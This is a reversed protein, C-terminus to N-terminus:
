RAGEVSISFFGNPWAMGTSISFTAQQCGEPVPVSVDFDYPPNSNLPIPVILEEEEASCARVKVNIRGTYQSSGGLKSGSATGKIRLESPNGSIYCGTYKQSGTTQGIIYSVDRAYIGEISYEIQFDYIYTPHGQMTPEMGHPAFVGRIPFGENGTSVVINVESDKEVVTGAIPDQSIVHDKPVTESFATTSTSLLSVKQIEAEALGKEMGVVDPVVVKEEKGDFGESRVKLGGFAIEAYVKDGDKIKVGDLEFLGNVANADYRKRLRDNEDVVEVTVLGNYKIEKNYEVDVSHKIEGAVEGEEARNVIVTLAPIYIRIANVGAEIINPFLATAQSQVCALDIYPYVNYRGPILSAIYSIDTCHKVMNGGVKSVYYSDDYTMNNILPSAYPKDRHIIPDTKSGHISTGFITESTLFNTNTFLALSHAISRIDNKAELEKMLDEDPKGDFFSNFDSLYNNRFYDVYEEYPDPNGFISNNNFLPSPHADNRVHSPCGNDGIMHLTEGLSRWVRAMIENRKKENSEQLAMRMWNKGNEWTYYHEQIGMGANPYGIAWEVGDIHPNTFLQQMLGMIKSNAIDTLYRSGTSKTPDYFHRLSAPVEPVDAAYGGHSIWMKPTLSMNGEEFYLFKEVKTYYYLGAVDDQHFLGDKIIAVGTLKGAEFNFSYKNFKKYYQREFGYWRVFADVIATNLDPHTKKNGYGTLVFAIIFYVMIGTLFGLIKQAKM